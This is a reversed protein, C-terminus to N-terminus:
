KKQPPVLLNQGKTIEYPEKLKNIKALKKWSINNAASISKLTDGEQVEYKVCKKIFKKHSSRKLIIGLIVLVILILIVFILTWPIIYFTLEKSQVDFEKFTNLQIDLESFSITAKATYIGFIPSSYWCIESNVTDGQLMTMDNIPIETINGFLDKLEISGKTQVITNGKNEIEFFFKHKKKDFKYSFDKWNYQTHKEGPIKIFIPTVVRTSVIAGTSQQNTKPSMPQVALGGGYVGPTINSPIDITYKVYKQEMGELHVQDKEFKVWNGINIQESTKPLVTFSGTTTQTGDTAYIYADIPDEKINIVRIEKTLKSGPDIEFNLKEYDERRFSVQASAICPIFTILFLLIISLKKFNM